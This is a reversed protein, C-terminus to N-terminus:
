AVGLLRLTNGSAIMQQEAANLGCYAFAKQLREPVSTEVAIPWDTGMLVHDAGLMGVATRVAVPHLGMTDIYVHRRTLAPADSRIRQGDGFGGALLVGGLALTTVVVRLNPLDDFTGGELLSVLAASNITGRALRVGLRGSKSFRKHMQPDTLPHVFVPVGLAAATALTPRSQPAGLLLDGKNGAEVFVGRLGLERVARTLERAGADGSYADVTALGYLHGPNKAVLEAMQDNIRLIAEAPFNGDADEIFATPTNIVRAGVGATEVSALLASQSALNANIKEWAPRAQPPLGALNTLTWSPGMYHNHFDVIKMPTGSQAAARESVALSGAAAAGAGAALAGLFERRGFSTDKEAVM